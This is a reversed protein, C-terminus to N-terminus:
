PHYEALGHTPTMGNVGTIAVAVTSELGGDQEAPGATNLYVVDTPSAKCGNRSRPMGRVTPPM